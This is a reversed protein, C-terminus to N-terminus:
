YFFDVHYDKCSKCEGIFHHEFDLKDDTTFLESPIRDGPMNGFYKSNAETMLLEFTKSFDFTGQFHMKFLFSANEHAKQGLFLHSSRTGKARGHDRQSEFGPGM